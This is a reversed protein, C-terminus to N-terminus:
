ARGLKILRIGVLLYFFTALLAAVIAFVALGDVFISGLYLIGALGM